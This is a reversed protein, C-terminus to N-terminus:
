PHRRAVLAGARAEFEDIIRDRSWREAARKRADIGLRRRLEQDDILGAVANALAAADGPPTALGCGEVEAHLGTGTEATAVVPRGSALMNTLKSPLVLDAAGLIQPLLHVSTLSLFDAMREAPQLDRFQVNGLGDALAELAARNPGEGAIVFVIDDRHALQRAAEIVTELGQKNAINGSYLAVHRHGIGWERRYDDADARAFDFNPDCWNRLEVAQNDPVGKAILRARMQPSITSIVDAMGFIRREV